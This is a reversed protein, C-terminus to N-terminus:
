APSSRGPTADTETRTGLTTIPGGRAATYERRNRIDAKVHRDQARRHLEAIVVARVFASPTCRDLHAVSELIEHEAATLRILVSETKPDVSRPRPM